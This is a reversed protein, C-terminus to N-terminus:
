GLIRLVGTSLLDGALLLAACWIFASIVNVPQFRGAPMAFIGAALPVAARLPGSFRAILIGAVGWRALFREGMAVFGPFRSIPWIRVVAHRYRVGIQYSVWDGAAAGLSGALWMPWFAIGEPGILAGIAVLAGWAPVFLSIVALSEGFALAFVIVLAWHEHAAAFVGIDHILEAVRQDEALRTVPSRGTYEILLKVKDERRATKRTRANM